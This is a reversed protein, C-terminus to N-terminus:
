NVYKVAIWNNTEINEIYKLSFERCKNKIFIMDEEYFGSLLLIGKDKLCTAYVPIDELLVNRNINAIIVDYKKSSILSADGEYVSIKKCHNQAANELTNLYCWNDTDVADIHAAGKKEALIALVGTGCGMDLVRKDTVEEKLLFRIMMMTTEHHGTGFSMKPSIVIDFRTDPQPHFPARVTCIGDVEVPEFNKEWEANWNLQAIEEYTYKIKFGPNKLIQVSDLINQKWDKKQIYAKIGDTTELFSEFGITSLEAALIEGAPQSPCIIFYYELYQM